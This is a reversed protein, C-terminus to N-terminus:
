IWDVYNNKKSDRELSDKRVWQYIFYQISVCVQPLVIEKCTIRCMQLDAGEIVDNRVRACM